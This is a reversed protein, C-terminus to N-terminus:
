SPDIQEFWAHADTARLRALLREITVAKPLAFIFVGPKGGAPAQYPEVGAGLADAALLVKEETAAADGESKWAVFIRGFLGGDKEIGGKWTLVHDEPTVVVVDQYTPKVWLVPVSEILALRGGRPAPGLDTAWVRERGKGEDTLLIKLKGAVPAPFPEKSDVFTVTSSPPTRNCGALVLLLLCRM